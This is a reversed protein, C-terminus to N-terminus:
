LPKVEVKRFKVVGEGYQLAFYGRPHKEDRVANVTRQGNLTVTMYPGRADIEMVNWKGGAHPMPDVKAVNVIAGTGYEPGPRKDFINVEYCTMGGIKQADSCRIFIGSNADDSVWVEARIQFDGYQNKTVLFGGKGKDAVVAGEAGRWNADGIANFNNMNTGDLLTVWGGNNAQAVVAQSLGFAALGGVMLGMATISRYRM